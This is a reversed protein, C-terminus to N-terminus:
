RHRQVRLKRNEIESEYLRRQLDRMKNFMKEQDRSSHPTNPSPFDDSSSSSESSSSYLMPSSSHLKRFDAPKKRFDRYYKMVDRSRRTKTKEAKRSSDRKRVPKEERHRLSEKTRARHRREREKQRNRKDKARRRKKEEERRLIEQKFARKARHRKESDESSRSPSKTHDVQERPQSVVPQPSQHVLLSVDDATSDCDEASEEKDTQVYGEDEAEEAEAEEAEEAEAEEAEEAEAEEAEAEEAEAEEAEEAEDAEAEAEDDADDDEAEDDADDLNPFDDRQMRQDLMARVLPDIDSDSDSDRDVDSGERHYKNQEAKSKSNLAIEELQEEKKLDSILAQLQKERYCSIVWGEGGVMRSNWRAGIANLATHYKERNGQIALRNNTYKKYTLM